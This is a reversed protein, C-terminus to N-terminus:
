AFILGRWKSGFYTVERGISCARKLKIQGFGVDIIYLIFAHISKLHYWLLSVSPHIKVRIKEVLTYNHLSQYKTGAWIHGVWGDTDKM